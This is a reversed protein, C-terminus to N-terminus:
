SPVCHMCSWAKLAKAASNGDQHRFDHLSYSRGQDLEEGIRTMFTYIYIYHKHFIHLHM